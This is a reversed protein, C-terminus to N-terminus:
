KGKRYDEIALKLALPWAAVLVVERLYPNSLPNPRINTRPRLDVIWMVSLGCLIYFVEVIGLVQAWLPM